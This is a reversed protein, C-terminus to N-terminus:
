ATQLCETRDDAVVRDQELQFGLAEDQAPTEFSARTPAASAEQRANMAVGQLSQPFLDFGDSGAIKQAKQRSPLVQIGLALEVARDAHQGHNPLQGGE